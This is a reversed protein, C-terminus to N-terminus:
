FTRIHGLRLYKSSWRRCSRQVHISQESIPTPYLHRPTHQMVVKQFLFESNEKLLRVCFFLGCNGSCCVFVSEYFKGYGLGSLVIFIKHACPAPGDSPVDLVDAILQLSGSAV